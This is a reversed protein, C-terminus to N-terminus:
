HHGKMIPLPPVKSLTQSLMVIVKVSDAMDHLSVFESQSHFNHGGAFINATPLGMWSLQSGDTGGRIPISVIDKMNLASYVEMISLEMFPYKDLVQKMNRYQQVVNMEITVNSHEFRLQDIIKSIEQSYQKLESEEFSRLICRITTKEVNGNIDLCHAFGERDKSIDPSPMQENVRDLFQAAVKMSNIMRSYATGPHINFGTFAVTVLDASFSEVNYTGKEGGDVTFAVAASFKPIDFYHPGRGIEEDITFGIQIDGHEISPNEILFEIATMIEAIGAKDDAGLLTGGSATVIDHGIMKLLEKGDIKYDVITLNNVILNEGDKYNRHVCPTVNFGSIETATDMHALFGVSLVDRELNKPLTAYVNGYQDMDVNKLGKMTKLEELLLHALVKQKETSPVTTSHPDSQTDIQVYKLFREELRKRMWTNNQESFRIRSGHQHFHDHEKMEGNLDVQITGDHSISESSSPSSSSCLLAKMVLMLLVLLCFFVKVKSFM